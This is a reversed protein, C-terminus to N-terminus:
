KLDSNCILNSSPLDYQRVELRKSRAEAGPKDPVVVLFEYKGLPVQISQAAMTRIPALRNLLLPRPKILTRPLAARLPM